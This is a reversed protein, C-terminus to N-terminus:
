GLVSGFLELQAHPSRDRLRASKWTRFGLKAVLQTSTRRDHDTLGRAALTVLANIHVALTIEDAPRSGSVIQRLRAGAREVMAEVERTQMPGHTRGPDVNDHQSRRVGLAWILRSAGDVSMADFFKDLDGHSVSRVGAVAPLDMRDALWATMWTPVGDSPSGPDIRSLDQGCRCRTLTMRRWCLAEKCNPCQDLLPTWHLRCRTMFLVDWDVRAYGDVALCTPCVQPRHSRLLWPKSLERGMLSIHLEGDRRLQHPALAILRSPSAGYLQAIAAAHAEGGRVVSSCGLLRATGALGRVRNAEAMRLAYGLVAEDAFAEDSRPLQRLM